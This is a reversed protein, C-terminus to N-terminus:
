HNVRKVIQPRPHRLNQSFGSSSTHFFKCTSKRNCKENHRCMKQRLPSKQRTGWHGDQEQREGQVNFMERPKQVGVGQHYFMCHGREKWQCAPGNQCAKAMRTGKEQTFSSNPRDQHGVHSYGCKAGKTCKGRRWHYCVERSAVRQESHVDSIHKKIEEKSRGTKGCDSCEYEPAKGHCQQKHRRLGFNTFNNSCKPCTVTNIGQQLCQTHHRVLETESACMKDCLICQKQSHKASMHNELDKNTQFSKDCATCKNGSASKNMIVRPVERVSTNIPVDEVEEAQEDDQVHEEEDGDVGLAENLSRIMNDKNEVEFRLDQKDKTLKGNEDRLKELVADHEKKAKTQKENLKKAVNLDCKLKDVESDRETLRATQETVVELQLKCEDCKNKHSDHHKLTRNERKLCDNEKVEDDIKVKTDNFIKEKKKLIVKFREIKELLEKEADHDNEPVKFAQSLREFQDYLDNLDQEDAAEQAAEDDDQVQKSLTGHTEEMHKTVEEKSPFHIDCFACVFTVASVVKPSNVAGKSNGQTAEESEDFQLVNVANSPPFNGLPSQIETPDNHCKRMHALM